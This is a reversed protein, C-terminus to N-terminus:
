DDGVLRAVPATVAINEMIIKIMVTLPVALVMGGVGWCQGWFTLSLLIMIPSLGVARGLLMPEVFSSSIMYIALFLVMVIVPQIGWPLDLVVFISPVVFGILSGIYPIFNCFFTLLGWLSGFKVDCVWCVLTIPVALILSSLVKAFLYDAIKDNIGEITIGIREANEVPFAKRVRAPFRGAEVLMFTLYLIVVALELAFSALRELLSAVFSKLFEYTTQELKEIDDTVHTIWPAHVKTYEEVANIKKRAEEELRPLEKNLEAVNNNIIRVVILFSLLTVGIVGLMALFTPVRKKFRHYIPLIVYGLLIALLLPRLVGALGNLLYWSSAAIVLYIALKM